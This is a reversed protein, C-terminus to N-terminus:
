VKPRQVNLVVVFFLLGDFICCRGIVLTCIIDLPIYKFCIIPNRVINVKLFLNGTKDLSLNELHEKDKVM